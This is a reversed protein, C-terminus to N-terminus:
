PANRLRTRLAWVETNQRRCESTTCCVSLVPFFPFIAGNARAQMGSWEREWLFAIVRVAVKDALCFYAADFV